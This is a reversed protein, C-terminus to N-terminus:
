ILSDWLKKAQTEGAPDTPFARYFEQKPLVVTIKIKTKKMNEFNNKVYLIHKTNIVVKETFMTFNPSAKLLFDVGMNALTLSSGDIFLVMLAGTETLVGACVNNINLNFKNM